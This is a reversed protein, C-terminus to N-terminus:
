SASDVRLVREDTVIAHVPVDFEVNPVEAVLQFDFAIAVRFANPLTPLVRDYFGKGYGVRQGRPDVALCPVVVLDIEERPVRPAELSPEYIGFAGRSLGTGDFDHFVIEQADLDVRPLAIRRDDALWAETPPIVEKRFAVFSAIRKASQVEPLKALESSM